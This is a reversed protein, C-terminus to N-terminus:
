QELTAQLRMPITQGDQLALLVPLSQYIGGGAIAITEEQACVTRRMRTAAFFLATATRATIGSQVSHLQVSRSKILGTTQVAQFGKGAQIARSKVTQRDILSGHRQLTALEGNGLGHFHRSLRQNRQSGALSQVPT